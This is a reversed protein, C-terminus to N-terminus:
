DEQWLLEESELLELLFDAAIEGALEAGAETMHMSDYFYDRSHPIESALDLVAIGEQACVYMLDRNLVDLMLSFTAASMPSE